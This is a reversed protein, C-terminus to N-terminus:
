KKVGLSKLMSLAYANAPDLILVQQFEEIAKGREGRRLYVEGLNNHVDINAPEVIMAQALVAEASASNGMRLYAQSLSLMSSDNKMISYAIGLNSLLGVNDKYKELAENFTDVIKGPQGMNTYVLGLRQMSMTLSPNIMFSAKYENAAAPLEGRMEYILGRNYYAEAYRPDIVIAKNTYDLAKDLAGPMAQLSLYTKGLIYFNDANYPDAITAKLMAAISEDYMKQKDPSNQAINLLTIGYYTM